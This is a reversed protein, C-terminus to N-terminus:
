APRDATPGVPGRGRWAVGVLWVALPLLTWLAVAVAPLPDRGARLDVALEGAALAAFLVNLPVLVRDARGTLRRRAFRFRRVFFVLAAFNVTAHLWVFVAHAAEWPGAARGAAGVTALYGIAAWPGLVFALMLTLCNQGHMERRLGRASHVLRRALAREEDTLAEWLPALTVFDGELDVPRPRLNALYYVRVRPPVGAGTLDDDLAAYEPHGRHWDAASVYLDDVPVPM